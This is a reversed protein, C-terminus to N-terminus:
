AVCAWGEQPSTTTGSLLKSRLTANTVDPLGLFGHQRVLGRCIVFIKSCLICLPEYSLYLHHRRTYIQILQHSTVNSPPFHCIWSLHTCPFACWMHPSRFRHSVPGGAQSLVEQCRLSCPSGQTCTGCSEGPAESMLVSGGTLRNCVFSVLVGDGKLLFKWDLFFNWGATHHSSGWTLSQSSM